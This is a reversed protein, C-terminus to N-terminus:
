GEATAVKASIFIYFVEQGAEHVISGKTYIFTGDFSFSKIVYVREHAHRRRPSRSRMTKDITQANVISEVVEAAELGDAEM